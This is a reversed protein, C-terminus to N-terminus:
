IWGCASARAASATATMGKSIIKATSDAPEDTETENQHWTHNLDIISRSPHPFILDFYTTVVLMM